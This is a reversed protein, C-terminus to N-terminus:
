ARDSELRIPTGSHERKLQNRDAGLRPNAAQKADQVQNTNDQYCLMGYM